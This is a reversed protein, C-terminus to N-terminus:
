MSTAMRMLIFIIATQLILSPTYWPLIILTIRRKSSKSWGAAETGIYVHRNWYKLDRWISPTGGIRGVEFPNFPDSIDVFAAVDDQILGVVAFERGDQMFVPLILPERVLPLTHHWRWIATISHVNQKLTRIEMAYVVSIKLLMEVVFGPAIWNTRVAVMMISTADQTIIAPLRLGYLWSLFCTGGNCDDDCVWGGADENCDCDSSVCNNEWDDLCVYNDPCGTQFVAPLIIM